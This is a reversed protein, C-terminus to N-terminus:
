QPKEPRMRPKSHPPHYSVDISALWDVNDFNDDVTHFDAVGNCGNTSMFHM